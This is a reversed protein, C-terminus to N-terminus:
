SPLNCKPPLIQMASRNKKQCIKKKKKNQPRRSFTVEAVFSKKGYLLGQHAILSKQEKEKKKKSSFFIKNELYRSKQTKTFNVSKLIQPTLM